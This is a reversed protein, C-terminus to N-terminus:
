IYQNGFSVQQIDGVARLKSVASQYDQAELFKM